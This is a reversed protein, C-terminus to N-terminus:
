ESSTQPRPVLVVMDKPSEASQLLDMQKELLMAIVLFHPVFTKAGKIGESHGDRTPIVNSKEGDM